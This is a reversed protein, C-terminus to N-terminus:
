GNAKRVLRNSYWQSGRGLRVWGNAALVRLLHDHAAVVEPEPAAPDIGRCRFWPSQALVAPRQGQSPSVEAYFHSKVYGRFVRVECSTAVNLQATTRPLARTISRTPHHRPAGPWRPIRGRRGSLQASAAFRPLVGPLAFLTLAATLSVAAAVLLAVNSGGGSSSASQALRRFPVVAFRGRLPRGTTQPALGQERSQRLAHVPKVAVEHRRSSRRPRVPLPPRTSARRVQTRPPLQAAAPTVRVAPKSPVTRTPTAPAPKAVPPAPDPNPDPEAPLTVSPPDSGPPQPDDARASSAFLAFLAVVLLSAACAVTKAPLVRSLRPRAWRPPM